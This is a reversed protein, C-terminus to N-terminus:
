GNMTDAALRALHEVRARVLHLHNNVDEIQDAQEPCPPCALASGLLAAVAAADIDEFFTDPNGAMAAAVSNRM